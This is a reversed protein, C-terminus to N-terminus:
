LYLKKSPWKSVNFLTRFCLKSILDLPKLPSLPQTSVFHLLNVMEACTWGHPPQAPPAKMVPVTMQRMFVTGLYKFGRKFHGIRTKHPHPRLRLQHLVDRASEFAAGAEDRGQSLVVFDDAYRVLKLRRRLLEFDFANLYLNCALPEFLGGQPVGRSLQERRAEGHRQPWQTGCELACRMLECVQPCRVCDALLSWLRTRDLSDFCNEIDSELLAGFGQDRWHEVEAIADYISRSPRYAYSCDAELPDLMPELINPMARQAVRDRVTPAGVRRWGGPKRLAIGRLPQPQYSLGRMERRLQKLHRPAQPLFDAVWVGDSGAASNKHRVRQWAQTVLEFTRSKYHAQLPPGVKCASATDVAAGSTAGDFVARFDNEVKLGAILGTTQSLTFDRDLDGFVAM